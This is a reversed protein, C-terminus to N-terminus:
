VRGVLGEAPREVIGDGSEREGARAGDNLVRVSQELSASM